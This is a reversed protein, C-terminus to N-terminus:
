NFNLHIVISVAYIRHTFVDDVDEVLLDVFAVAPFASKLLTSYLLINISSSQFSFPFAAHAVPIAAAM